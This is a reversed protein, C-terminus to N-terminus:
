HRHILRAPLREGAARRQAPRASRPEPSVDGHSEAVPSILSRGAASGPTSAPGPSVPASRLQIQQVEDLGPAQLPVGPILELIGALSTATQHRIAERGIVSATGLEGRARGQADASVAIENLRLAHPAMLLDHERATASVLIQLRAQAYGPMEARLVQPGPPVAALRFRGLSDSVAVAAQGEVSVAAGAIPASTRADLVRGTVDVQAAANVTTVIPLAACVVSICLFRSM